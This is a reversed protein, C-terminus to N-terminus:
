FDSYIFCSGQMLCYTSHYGKFVPCAIQIHKTEL